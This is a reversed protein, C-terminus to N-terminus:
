EMRPWWDRRYFLNDNVWACCFFEFKSCLFKAKFFYKGGHHKPCPKLNLQSVLSGISGISPELPLLVVDTVKYVPHPVMGRGLNIFHIFIWFFTWVCLLKKRGKQTDECNLYLFSRPRVQFSELEIVAESWFLDRVSMQLIKPKFHKWRDPEVKIAVQTYTSRATCHL